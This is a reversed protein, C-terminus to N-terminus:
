VGGAYKSMCRDYSRNRQFTVRKYWKKSKHECHDIRTQVARILQANDGSYDLCASVTGFARQSEPLSCWMFEARAEDPAMRGAERAACGEDLVSGSNFGIGYATAGIGDKVRCPNSPYPEDGFELKSLAESAAEKVTIAALGGLFLLLMAGSIGMGRQKHKSM